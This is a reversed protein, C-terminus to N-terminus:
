YVLHDYNYSEGYMSVYLPPKEYHYQMLGRKENAFFFFSFSSGFGEKKYFM